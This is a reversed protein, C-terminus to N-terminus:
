GIVAKTVIDNEIDLKVRLPDYGGQPVMRMHKDKSVVVLEYGHEIIYEGAAALTMDVLLEPKDIRMIM